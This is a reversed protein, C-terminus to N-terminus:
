RAPSVSVKRPEVLRDFDAYKLRIIESHSGATFALDDEEALRDSVYVQMGYLNGFPPMAGVECEPFRDKFDREAALEIQRAGIQRAFLDFEVRSAAPLVAMAM